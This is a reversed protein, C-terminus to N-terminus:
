EQLGRSQGKGSHQRGPGNFLGEGLVAPQEAEV